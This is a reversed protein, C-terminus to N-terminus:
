PTPNLTDAAPPNLTHPELYATCCAPSCFLEPPPNSSAHYVCAATIGTSVLKEKFRGPGGWLGGFCPVGGSGGGSIRNQLGGGSTGGTGLLVATGAEAAAEARGGRPPLTSAVARADDDQSSPHVVEELWRMM